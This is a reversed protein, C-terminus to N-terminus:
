VDGAALVRRNTVAVADLVKKPLRNQRGSNLHNNRPKNHGVSGGVTGGGVAGSAGLEDGGAGTDDVGAGTDEVDPGVGGDTSREQGIKKGDDAM